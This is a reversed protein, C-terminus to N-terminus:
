EHIDIYNRTSFPVFDNAKEVLSEIDIPIISAIELQSIVTYIPDAYTNGNVLEPLYYMNLTYRPFLRWKANVKKRLLEGIYIGLYNNLEQSNKSNIVKNNVVRSLEKLYVPDNTIEVKFDLLESLKDCYYPIESNLKLMRSKEREWFSGDGKVPFNRSKIMEEMESVNNFLIGEGGGAGPFLIATKDKFITVSAKNYDVQYSSDIEAFKKEEIENLKVTSLIRYSTESQSKSKKAM